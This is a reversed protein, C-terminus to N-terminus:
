NNIKLAKCNFCKEPTFEIKENSDCKVFKRKFYTRDYKHVTVLMVGQMGKRGPVNAQSLCNTVVNSLDKLHKYSLSGKPRERILPIKNKEKHESSKDISFPSARHQRGNILRKPLAKLCKPNRNVDNLRETDSSRHIVRSFNLAKDDNANNIAEVIKTLSTHAPLEQGVNCISFTARHTSVKKPIRSASLSSQM